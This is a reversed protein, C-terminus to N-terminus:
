SCPINKQNIGIIIYGDPNKYGAIDGIGKNCLKSPNKWKFIGTIPNYDLQKTLEKHTLEKIM